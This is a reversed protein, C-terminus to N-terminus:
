IKKLLNKPCTQYNVDFSAMASNDCFLNQLNKILGCIFFTKSHSDEFYQDGLNVHKNVQFGTSMLQEM